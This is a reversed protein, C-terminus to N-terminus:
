QELFSVLGASERRRMEANVKQRELVQQLTQVAQPIDHESFYAQVSAEATDSNLMKASDVMRVITNVPFKENAESWRQQVI